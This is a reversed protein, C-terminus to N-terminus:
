NSKLDYVLSKNIFDDILWKVVDKWYKACLFSEVLGFPSYWAKFLKDSLNNYRKIFNTANDLTIESNSNYQYFLNSDFITSGLWLVNIVKRELWSLDSLSYERCFNRGFEIELRHVSKYDLYDTYLFRKDKKNTDIKKDYYRIIYKWSNPSWVRWDILKWWQKWTVINSQSHIYWLIDTIWPTCVEKNFSFYDIRFDYRTIVPDEWSISKIYNLLEKYDFEWIAQLRFYAGYITIKASKWLLERNHKDFKVYQFIPTPIWNYDVIFTLWIWNWTVLRNYSFSHWCINLVWFNSNDNDIWFMLENFYHISDTYSLTLFDCGFDIKDFNKLNEKIKISNLVTKRM